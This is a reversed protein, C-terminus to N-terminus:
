IKRLRLRGSASSESGDPRTRLPSGCLRSRTSTGVNAAHDGRTRAEEAKKSLEQLRQEDERTYNDFESCAASAVRYPRTSKSASQDKFSPPPPRPKKTSYGCCSPSPILQTWRRAHQIYCPRLGSQFLMSNMDFPRHHHHPPSVFTSIPVITPISAVAEYLGAGNFTGLALLEFSVKSRADFM